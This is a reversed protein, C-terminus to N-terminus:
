DGFVASELDNLRNAVRLNNQLRAWRVFLFGLTIMTLGVYQSTTVPQLITKQAM